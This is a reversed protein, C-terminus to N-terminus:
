LDQFNTLSTDTVHKLNLSYNQNQRIEKPNQKSFYGKNLQKVVNVNKKQDLNIAVSSLKKKKILLINTNTSVVLLDSMM